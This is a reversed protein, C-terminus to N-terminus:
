EEGYIIKPVRVYDWRGNFVEKPLPKTSLPNSDIQVKNFMRTENQYLKPLKHQYKEWCSQLLKLAQLPGLGTNKETQLIKRFFKEKYARFGNFEKVVGVGSLYPHPSYMEKTTPRNKRLAGAITLASRANAVEGGGTQLDVPISLYLDGYMAYFIEDLNIEDWGECKGLIVVCYDVKDKHPKLQKCASDIRRRLLDSLDRPSLTFSTGGAAISAKSAKDFPTEKIEKIEALITAGNKKFRYDPNKEGSGFPEYKFKVKQQTLYSEFLLETKSRQLKTM